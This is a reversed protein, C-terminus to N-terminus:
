YSFIADLLFRKLSSSAISKTKFLLLLLWSVETPPKDLSSSTRSQWYSFLSLKSSKLYFIQFLHLVKDRMVLDPSM